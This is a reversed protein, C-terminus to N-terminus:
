RVQAKHLATLKEVAKLELLLRGGVILDCCRKGIAIGKYHVYMKVQREVHVGRERLEICMANEYMKEDLGAGLRGYVEYAANVVVKSLRNLEEDPEEYPPEEDEYPM